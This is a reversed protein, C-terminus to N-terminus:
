TGFITLTRLPILFLMLGSKYCQQKTLAVCKSWCPICLGTRHAQGLAEIQDDPDDSQEEELAKVYSVPYRSLYANVEIGTMVWDVKDDEAPLKPMSGYPTPQNVPAATVAPNPSSGKKERIKSSSLGENSAM